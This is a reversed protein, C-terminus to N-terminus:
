GFRYWESIGVFIRSLLGPVKRHVMVDNHSMTICRPFISWVARLLLNLKLMEIFTSSRNLRSHRLTAAIVRPVPMLINPFIPKPIM